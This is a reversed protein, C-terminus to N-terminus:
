KKPAPHEIAGAKKEKSLGWISVYEHEGCNPCEHADSSGYSDDGHKWVTGCEPCQHYHM